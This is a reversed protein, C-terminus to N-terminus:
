NAPKSLKQGMLNNTFIECLEYFGGDLLDKNNEFMESFLRYDDVGMWCTENNEFMESFLRYDDFRRSLWM